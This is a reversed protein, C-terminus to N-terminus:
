KNNNMEVKASVFDESNNLFEPAEDSWYDRAIEEAMFKIRDEELQNLRYDERDLDDMRSLIDKIPIEYVRSFTVKVTKM